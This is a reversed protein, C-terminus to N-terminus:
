EILIFTSYGLDNFADALNKAVYQLVTTGRTTIFLIRWPENFDPEQLKIANRYEVGINNKKQWAINQLADIYSSIEEQQKKSFQNTFKINSIGRNPTESMYDCLEELPLGILNEYPSEKHKGNYYCIQLNNFITFKNQKRAEQYAEKYDFFYTDM